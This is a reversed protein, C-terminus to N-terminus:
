WRRRTAEYREEAAFAAREAEPVAVGIRARVAEVTANWCMWHELRDVRARAYADARAQQNSRFTPEVFKAIRARLREQLPTRHVPPYEPGYDAHAARLGVGHSAGFATAMIADAYLEAREPRQYSAIDTETRKGWERLARDYDAVLTNYIV